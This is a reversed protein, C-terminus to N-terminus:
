HIKFACGRLLAKKRSGEAVSFQFLTGCLPSSGGAIFLSCNKSYESFSPNRSNSHILFVTVACFCLVAHSLPFRLILSIQLRPKPDNLKNELSERLFQFVAIKAYKQLLKKISFKHNKM